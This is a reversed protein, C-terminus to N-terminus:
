SESKYLPTNHLRGCWHELEILEQNASTNMLAQCTLGAQYVKLVACISQVSQQHLEFNTNHTRKCSIQSLLDEAIAPDLNQSKIQSIEQSEYRLKSALAALEHWCSQSKAKIPLKAQGKDKQLTFSTLDLFYCWAFLWFQCYSFDFAVKENESVFCFQGQLNQVKVQGETQGHLSYIRLFTLCTSECCGALLLGQMACLGSKLWKIDKLFTYLSPIICFIKLM